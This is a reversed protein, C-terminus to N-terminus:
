REGFSFTQEMARILFLENNRKYLIYLSEFLRLCNLLFLIASDVRAQTYVVIVSEMSKRHFHIDKRAAEDEYFM